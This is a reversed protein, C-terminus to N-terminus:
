QPGSLGSPSKPLRAERSLSVPSSLTSSVLPLKMMMIGLVNRRPLPGWSRSDISEGENDGCVFIHKGPIQWCAVQSPTRGTMWRAGPEKERHTNISLKASFSEGATAVVRKVYCNGPSSPFAEQQGPQTDLTVVVIQGKLLYDALWPRRVLIRDGHQLTPFMSQGYVTVVLLSARLLWFLGATLGVLVILTLVIQPM